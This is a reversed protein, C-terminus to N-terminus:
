GAESADTQRRLLDALVDTAPRATTLGNRLAASRRQLEALFEGGSAIARSDSNASDPLHKESDTM